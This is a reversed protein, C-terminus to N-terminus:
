RQFKLGHKKIKGPKFQLNAFPLPLDQDRLIRLTAESVNQMFFELMKEEQGKPDPCHFYYISTKSLNNLTKVWHGGSHRTKGIDPNYFENIRSSLGHGSKRKDAKGIYLINEDPLWFETLRKRLLLPTPSRGDITLKPCKQIWRTITEENFNPYALADINAEIKNGTSVIYIGSKNENFHHGWSIQKYDNIKFYSFLDKISLPM